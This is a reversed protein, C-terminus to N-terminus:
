SWCSTAAKRADLARLQTEYLPQWKGDGARFATWSPSLPMYILGRYAKPLSRVIAVAVVGRAKLLGMRAFSSTFLTM